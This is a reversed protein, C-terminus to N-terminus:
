DAPGRLDIGVEGAITISVRTCDADADVSRTINLASIEPEPNVETDAPGFLEAAIAAAEDLTLCEANLREHLQDAPASWPNVKPPKPVVGTTAVLMVRSDEPKLIATACDSEGNAVRESGDPYRGVTTTWGLGLRTLEREVIPVAESTSYCEGYLGTSVDDLSAELELIAVDQRFDDGLPQYSGAVEGGEEYVVVGGHESEYAALPGHEIGMRDMDAACDAVPDGSVAAIVVTGPCTIRTTQEPRSNTVALATGASAVILLSAAVLATRRRRPRRPM